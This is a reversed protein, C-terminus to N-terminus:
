SSQRNSEQRRQVSSDKVPGLSKSSVHHTALENMPNFEGSGTTNINGKLGVYLTPDNNGARRHGRSAVKPTSLESNQVSHVVSNFLQKKKNQQGTSNIGKLTSVLQSVNSTKNKKPSNPLSAQLNYKKLEAQGSIHM